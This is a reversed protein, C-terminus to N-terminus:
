PTLLKPDLGLQLSKNLGASLLSYGSSNPWEITGIGQVVLNELAPLQDFKQSNALGIYNPIHIITVVVGGVIAGIVAAIIKSAIRSFGTITAVKTAGGLAGIVAGLIVAVFDLGITVGEVWDAYEVSHDVRTATKDEPTQEFWLVNTGDGRPKISVHMEEHLDIVIDIGPSVNVTLKPMDVHIKDTVISLTFGGAELTGTYSKGDADVVLSLPSKNRLVTDTILEFDGV